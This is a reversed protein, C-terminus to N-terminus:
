FSQPWREETWVSGWAWAWWLARQRFSQIRPKTGGESLQEASRGTRMEAQSLLQRQAPVPDAGAGDM